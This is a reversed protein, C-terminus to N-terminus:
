KGMPIHYEVDFSSCSIFRLNGRKCANMESDCLSICICLLLRIHSTRAVSSPSISTKKYCGM